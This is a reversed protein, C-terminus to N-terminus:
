PSLAGMSFRDPRLQTYASLVERQNLLDHHPLSFIPTVVRTQFEEIYPMTTWNSGHTMRYDERLQHQLKILEKKTKLEQKLAQVTARKEM